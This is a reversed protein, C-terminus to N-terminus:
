EKEEQFDRGGLALLEEAIKRNIKIRQVRKEGIRLQSTLRNKTADIWKLRKWIRLKNLATDYKGYPPQSLIHELQKRTIYIYQDTMHLQENDGVQKLFEVIEIYERIRKGLSVGIKM